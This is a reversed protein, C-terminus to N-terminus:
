KVVMDKVYFRGDRQAQWELRESLGYIFDLNVLWIVVAEEHGFALAEQIIAERKAPDLEKGQTIILEQRAKAESINTIVM